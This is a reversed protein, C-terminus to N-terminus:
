GGIRSMTGIGDGMDMDAFRHREPKTYIVREMAAEIEADDAGGRLLGRLDLGDHHCLCPKLFGESTLRVRNCAACFHDSVAGILGIAGQLRASRFYRAPGFGHRTPDPALDPYASRLRELIEAGSCGSLREGSGTPMLEIFRVDLPRVEALRAIAPIEGDNLRRIAVCNIKVRLGAEVAKQVSRWVGDLADRGTLQRYTERDLSDLSINVGDLGIGALEEIVPELLVGNTTLTVHEIGRVAKLARVFDVCGKRALPEGGTVKVNQIGTKAALACLRLIEEYRLIDVHPIFPLDGPMCYRCRLNCRDTISVRLYDIKRGLSDNM